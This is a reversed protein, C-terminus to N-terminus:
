HKKDKPKEEKGFPLSGKKQFNSKQNVPAKPVLRKISDQRISDKVRRKDTYIKKTGELNAKVKELLKQYEDVKTTYYFNSRKLRLSDIGYKNYVLPIYNVGKQFKNNKLNRAASAIYLDTIVAVMTDKPILDKPKEYITNSTCSFLYCSVLLLLYKKM